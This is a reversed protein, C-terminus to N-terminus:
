KSYAPGIGLGAQWRFSRPFDKDYDLRQGGARLLYTPRSVGGRLALSLRRGLKFYLALDAGWDVGFGGLLENSRAGAVPLMTVPDLAGIETIQERGIAFGTGVHPLVAPRVRWWYPLALLDIAVDFEIRNIRLDVDSAADGLWRDRSFEFGVL